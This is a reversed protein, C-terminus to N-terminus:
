SKGGVIKTVIDILMKDRKAILKADESKNADFATMVNEYQERTVKTLFQNKAVGMLIPKEALKSIANSKGTLKENDVAAKVLKEWDSETLPKPFSDVSYGSTNKNFFVIAITGAAIISLGLIWKGTTTM